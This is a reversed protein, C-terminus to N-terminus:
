HSSFNMFCYSFPFVFVFRLFIHIHTHSCLSWCFAFSFSLFFCSFWSIEAVNVSVCLPVYLIDICHPVHTCLIIYLYFFASECIHKWASNLVYFPVVVADNSCEFGNLLFSIYWLTAVFFYFFPIRSYMVHVLHISLRVHAQRPCLVSCYELMLPLRCFSLSFKHLFRFYKPNRYYAGLFSNRFYIYM